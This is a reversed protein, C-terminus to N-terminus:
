ERRQLGGERSIVERNVDLKVRQGLEARSRIGLKRYIRTLNVEVTKPSIFLTAAVERTTMGSAALEAVRQESSTLGAGRKRGVSSRELEARARDVWFPTDLKEFLNLAERVTTVSTDKKRQRRQLQGLLLLTRAREFPMPLRDHELMAREAASSAAVLDGQAALLMARGRAGLALMWARNLRRGNRELADILPQAERGQGLQIKAEIADPLFPAVFIETARPAEEVARVWPELTDLAAKYNGLSVELFGLTTIPWVTVLFPSDCRHCIALAEAAHRRAEIEKGAYAALASQLMPALVRPLDGGLQTARQMVDEAIVACDSFNGRWIENLGGHFAFMLLESEDGREIARRRYAQLEERAEDLRGSGAMLAAHQVTTDLHATIPAERDELELARQLAPEDLGEGLFFSVLAHMALAQSLLQPQRIREATQVADAISGAADDLQRDNVQAHALPVLIQARLVLDDGAEDIAENLLKVAERSSGDLLSWLGLLRLAAARSAKPAPQEIIHILLARARATGGANYHHVAARIRRDPTDGGLRMALELLEAGALPAGRARALEAATDLSGLTAADGHTAALALHRAHLEPETVIDALRRHMGRRDAPTAGTYVGNGLLPHSFRVQHGELVIIGASEAEELLRSLADPGIALAAALLEVTPKGLCAAALLMEKVDASLAALRARVLEALTAPLPIDATATDIEVARALELAYFPNGGSVEHLRVMAPRPISRGLRQSVVDHLAGLKLPALRIRRTADPRALELPAAENGSPGTRVTAMVGVPGSLRRVAFAFVAASSSDLWQLDDIALILKQRAALGEIVALFAASATRQDAAASDDTSRLTIVDMALRQPGPLHAWVGSEIGALLDALAAFAMVAEAAAPRASLVRFGNSEARECAALWLTTKGIGADGEIVLACPGKSARALFDSVEVIETRHTFRTTTEAM